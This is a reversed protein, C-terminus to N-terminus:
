DTEGRRFANAVFVLAAVEALERNTDPVLIRSLVRELDLSLVDINKLTRLKKTSATPISGM